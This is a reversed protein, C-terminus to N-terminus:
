GAVLLNYKSLPPLPSALEIGYCVCGYEHEWALCVSVFTCAKLLEELSGEKRTEEIVRRFPLLM